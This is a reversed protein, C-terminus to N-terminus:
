INLVVIAALGLAMGVLQRPLFKEKYVTVSLVFLLVLQAASLIPFFLSAAVKGVILMVLFNTAGNCLGCLGAALVGNKLAPKIAKRETILSITLSALSAIALALIMFSANLTGSFTHEQATQLVSCFGNCTFALAAAVLWKANIRGTDGAKREARVLLASMALAVLGVAKLPSLPEGILLGYGTPILLSYSMVLSTIALSGWKLSLVEGVTAVIYVTAFGLSYPLLAPTLHIGEGSILASAIFFLLAFLSVLGSFLFDAGRTHAGFIKKLISQAVLAIVCLVIWAEM